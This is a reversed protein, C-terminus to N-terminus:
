FKLVVQRLKYDYNLIKFILDHITDIENEEMKIREIIESKIDRQEIGKLKKYNKRQMLYIKVLNVIWRWNKPMKGLVDYMQTIHKRNDKEISELNYDRLDFLSNGNLVEYLMCGIVWVDSKENYFSNIINEPPRYCRTLIEDSEMRGIIESSGFDIIKVSIDDLNIENIKINDNTQEENSDNLEEINM